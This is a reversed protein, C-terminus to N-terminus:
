ESTMESIIIDALSRTIDNNFHTQHKRDNAPQISIITIVRNCENNATYKKEISINGPIMNLDKIRLIITHDCKEKADAIKQHKFYYYMKSKWRFAVELPYSRKLLGTRLLYGLGKNNELTHDFALLIARKNHRNTIKIKTIIEPLYCSAKTEFSESMRKQFACNLIDVFENGSLPNIGYYFLRHKRYLKELKSYSENILIIKVDPFRQNINQVYEPGNDLYTASDFIVVKIESETLESLLENIDNIYNTVYGISALLQYYKNNHKSKKTFYIVKRLEGTKLDKFINDPRVEAIWCKNNICKQLISPNKILERNVKTIEGTVPSLIVQQHDKSYIEALPLGKYIIKEAEPLRITKITNYLLSNQIHSGVRCLGNRGQIFWSSKYFFYNETVDKGKIISVSEDSNNEVIDFPMTSKFDIKQLSGLIEDPGFPKVIYDVVGLKETMKRTEENPYGTIVIVPVQSNKNRMDNLLEIGNRKGLKLDLVIADYNKELAQRFGTEPNDYTDVMYGAQSFIRDCSKCILPEDDIVLISTQNKM